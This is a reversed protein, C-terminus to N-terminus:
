HQLAYLLSIVDQRAVPRPNSQTSGSELTEAVIGDLDENQWVAQEFPNKIDLQKLMAATQLVPDGGLLSALTAYKQPAAACNYRLVHPLALACVHGHALHFRVGLPHALGHVLGLRANALAMGALFSGYLLADREESNSNAFVCPLAKSVALIAEQAWSDTIASAGRSFFAEIAQTLADMGSCATVMAPCTRLLDPDLIVLRALHSAHRISKKLCGAEHTLVSVGTAESGTGATTPCAVFPLTSPPLPMGDQYDQAPLEACCLGTAAKALDM